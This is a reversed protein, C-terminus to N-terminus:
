IGIIQQAGKSRRGGGSQRRHDFAVHTVVPDRPKQRLLVVRGLIQPLLDLRRHPYNLASLAHQNKVVRNLLFRPGIFTFQHAPVVVMAAAAIDPSDVKEVRQVVA